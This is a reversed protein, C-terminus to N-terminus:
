ASKNEKWWDVLSSVRLKEPLGVKERDPCGNFDLEIARLAIANPIGLPCKSGYLEDGLIPFGHKAMEFRLQHSRGTLPALKWLSKDSDKGVLTAETIAEKGFEKEYARKKGRLLKSKWVLKEGSQFSKEAVDTLAEYSKRVCRKEFWGNAIRHADPTKAFLLVGSVEEDLRHIAWLRIQKEQSWETIECSRPDQDGLRSPVSLFGARKDVALFNTNEFLQVAM